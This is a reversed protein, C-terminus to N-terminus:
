EGDIYQTYSHYEVEEICLINTELEDLLFKYVFEIFDFEYIEYESFRSEIVITVFNKGKKVSLIYDGNETIGVVNMTSNNLMELLYVDDSIYTDYNLSELFESKRNYMNLYKSNTIPSLIWIFDDIKGMGFYDVFEVYDESLSIDIFNERDIYKKSEYKSFLKRTENWYNMNFLQKNNLFV